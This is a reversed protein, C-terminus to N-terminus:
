GGEDDGAQGRDAEEAVADSAAGRREGGRWLSSPFYEYTVDDLFGLRVGARVMREGRFWDGPVGLPSAVHEREFFRLHSHVLAGKLPLELARPEILGTTGDPRHERILGQAAELRRERCASLLRAIAEAPLEDDDDADFLWRGRALRYGHNRTLTSAALWHRHPDPYVYRETSALLRVRPDDTELAPADPGDAIVLVELEHHTQGLISPLMREGLREARGFTPVIVSVLPESETYALGYAPDRRAEALRRRSEADNGGLIRIAPLVEDDLRRSLREVEREREAAEASAVAIRNALENLHDHVAAFRRDLAAGALRRLRHIV